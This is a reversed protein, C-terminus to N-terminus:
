WKIIQTNTKKLNYVLCCGAYQICAKFYSLSSLLWHKSWEKAKGHRGSCQEASVYAAVAATVQYRRQEEHLVKNAEVEVWPMWKCAVSNRSMSVTIIVGWYRSHQGKHIRKSLSMLSYSDLLWFESCTQARGKIILEVHTPQTLYIKSITPSLLATALPCKVFTPILSVWSWYSCLRWWDVEWM